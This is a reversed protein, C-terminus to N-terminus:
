WVVMDQQLLEGPYHNVRQHPRLDALLRELGLKPHLNPLATPLELRSKAVWLINFDHDDESTPQFGADELTSSVVWISPLTRYKCCQAPAPTQAEVPLATGSYATPSFQALPVPEDRVRRRRGARVVRVSDDALVVVTPPAIKASSRRGVDGAECAPPLM